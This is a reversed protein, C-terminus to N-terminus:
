SSKTSAQQWPHIQQWSRIRELTQPPQERHALPQPGMTPNRHNRFGTNPQVPQLSDKHEAPMLGM